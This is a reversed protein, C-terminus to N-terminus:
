ADAGRGALLAPAAPVPEFVELVRERAAAALQKRDSGAVPQPAFRLVAEVRRLSLLGYFHAGFTMDGWWCISLRAPPGGVPDRYTVSACQVPLGARAAVAFVSPKFSKVEAGQSSTGEPFVTVGHGRALTGEIAALVRPLDAKRDRDVFLTGTARAIFGMLPWRAVESKALFLSSVQSQIVFVDVYSVHNSVLLFPARPPTGHSEVRVGLIALLGRSWNRVCANHLALSWRRSVVGTLRTALWVLFWLGTYPLVLVLRLVARLHQLPTM